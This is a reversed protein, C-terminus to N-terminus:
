RGRLRERPRELTRRRRSADSSPASPALSDSKSAAVWASPWRATPPRACGAPTRASADRRADPRAAHGRAPPGPRYARRSPRRHLRGARQAEGATLRPLRQAASQGLPRHMRRVIPPCPLPEAARTRSGAARSPAGQRRATARLSLPRRTPRAEACRASALAPASPRRAELLRPRSPCLSAWRCRVLRPQPGAGLLASPRMVAGWVRLGRGGTTTRGDNTDWSLEGAKGPSLGWAAALIALGKLRASGGRPGGGERPGYRVVAAAALYQLKLVVLASRFAMRSPRM